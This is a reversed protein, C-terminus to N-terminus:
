DEPLPIINYPFTVDELFMEWQEKQEIDGDTYYWTININHGANYYNQLLTIIDTLIKKSSTSIFDLNLEIQLKQKPAAFYKELQLILPQYVDMANEPYSDGTIRLFNDKFSLEILPTYKTPTIIYNEM